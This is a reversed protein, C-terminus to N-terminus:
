YGLINVVPPLLIEGALGPVMRAVTKPLAAGTVTPDVVIGLKLFYIMQRQALGTATPSATPDLLFGHSVGAQNFQFYGETPTVDTVATAAVAFKPTPANASDLTYMFQNLATTSGNYGLQKFGPALAAGVAGLVGRGGLANGLYRTSSNPIVLDSIAEQIAVRGSLRSPLGSALPSTMTAPDVPDTVSQSIQFFQHYTPTGVAIGKAALGANISVSFAPSDIMLYALRSGPVSLFGKMDNNLSSQTYPYGTTSLTTNGALYYAGVISGLSIGVYKIDVTPAPVIGLSTFGGSRVTLELRNLNFAGQQINTRTALPAGVAMFDQGWEAGTTHGPVALAGHLPLDIAVVTYGAATLSGAVAVVQEKRGTIGHQFIVVKGTPTTPKILVFPVSIATHYYGTLAGAADRFPQLVGSAPNYAGTVASLDGGASASNAKAVVPDMSLQASNITGTVISAVTTPPSTTSGIVSTWYAAPILGVPTTVTVANTWTKGPLGGLASGAAFARLSTEVPMMSAITGTGDKSVFGAGTTIFRGLVAIDNRSAVTTTASASIMDNMVKAYGSFRIDTGNAAKVDARIPELAAYSGTLPTSSKLLEFSASGTVSNGSASGKVRNTVVYMYRTAPFLPFKPFLFLDTSGATYKFDFLTSIDAFGLPSNETGSSDPTLQFVKVNAATVTVADVPNSFRIYIPANLGAVANTSGMEYTNIYSLAESPTMPTNAARALLPDKATATALVNPLPITGTGPDFLASIVPQMVILGVNTTQGNLVAVNSVSGQHTVSGTADLGIASFSLGNGVPVGNLTGSGSAAPFDQQMTTMGPGSIALRVTVVGIPASAVSKASTKSDTWVLKATISGLGKESHSTDGGSCGVLVLIMM